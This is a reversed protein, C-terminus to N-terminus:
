APFADEEPKESRLRYAAGRGGAEDREFIGLEVLEALDRQATKPITKTIAQWKKNTMKGEWGLLMRALGARQRDNLNKQAHAQWFRARAMAGGITASADDIARILCELYWTLWATYDLSGKQAAELADYYGQREKRIQASISYCRYPRKDARALAMDLIARAIRGNGDDFPHITVFWLHAVGAKLIGNAEEEKEFWALFARMETPIRDAAPAEFHVKEKGTHPRSVVQMPGLADDRWQAVRLPGFAGRGTPFLAAHWGFLREETLPEDCRESADMAMDVVGELHHDGSPVGGRSMGLRWAISSRVAEPDLREGEIESSRVVEEAIAQLKADQLDEFGLAKLSGFLEGQRMIVASLLPVIKRLDYQYRPWDSLRHIYSAM